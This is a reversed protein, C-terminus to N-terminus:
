CIKRKVGDTTLASVVYQKCTYRSMSKQHPLYSTKFSLYNPNRRMVNNDKHIATGQDRCCVDPAAVHEIM